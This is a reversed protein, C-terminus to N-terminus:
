ATHKLALEDGVGWRGGWWVMCGGKGGWVGRKHAGLERVQPDQRYHVGVAEFEGAFPILIDCVCRFGGHQHCLSSVVGERVGTRGGGGKGGKGEGSSGKGTTYVARPSIHAVYRLLQSKAVGPDGMLCAHIDGRLKMGDPLVKSVGGVMALLLAKKVDEHGYIEAPPRLTLSPCTHQLPTPLTLYTCLPLSSASHPHM